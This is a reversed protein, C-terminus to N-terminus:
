TAGTLSTLATQIGNRDMADISMQPSWEPTKGALILPGIRNDGVIDVYNPPLIHRHVDIRHCETM